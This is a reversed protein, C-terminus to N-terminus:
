SCTVQDENLSATAVSLLASSEFPRAVAAPAPVVVTYAILPPTVPSVVNVTVAVSTDISTVGVARLMAFPKVCCNAAVPRDESADVCSRVDCIVQSDDSGAIVVTLLVPRAVVAATPLVMM